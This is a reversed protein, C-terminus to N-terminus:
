KLTSKVNGVKPRISSVYSTMASAPDLVSYEPPITSPSKMTRGRVSAAQGEIVRVSLSNCAGDGAM